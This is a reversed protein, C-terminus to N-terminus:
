LVAWLKASPLFRLREFGMELRFAIALAHPDVSRNYVRFVFM